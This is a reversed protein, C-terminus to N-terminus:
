TFTSSGRRAVPSGRSSNGPGARRCRHIMTCRAATGSSPAGSSPLSRRKQPARRRSRSRCSPRSMFGAEMHGTNLSWSESETKVQMQPESDTRRLGTPPTALAATATGRDAHRRERRNKKTKRQSRDRERDPPRPDVPEEGAEPGEERHFVSSMVHQHSHLIKVTM